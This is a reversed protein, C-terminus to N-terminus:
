SDQNAQPLQERLFVNEAKLAQHSQDQLHNSMVRSLSYVTAVGGLVYAADTNGNNFQQLAIGVYAYPLGQESFRFAYNFKPSDFFRSTLNTIKNKITPKPEHEQEREM